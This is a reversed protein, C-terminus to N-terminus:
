FDKFIAVLTDLRGIQTFIKKEKDRIENLRELRAPSLVESEQGVVDIRKAQSLIDREEYKEAKLVQLFRSITKYIHELAIMKVRDPDFYWLFITRGAARTSDKPVEQIDVIGSMQMELLKTRVDKLKLLGFKQIQKEELKGKQRLMRAIRCGHEGFTEFIFNDLETEQMYNVLEDFDVTWEGLGRSGCKRVFHPSYDALLLLHNKIDKMKNMGAERSAPMPLKDDFTVKTKRGLPRVAPARTLTDAFFEEGDSDTEVVVEPINGFENVDNLLEEDDEDEDSSADGEVTAESDDIGRKRKRQPKELTATKIFHSEVKGIGLSPNISKDLARALEMTSVTPGEDIDNLDDISPDLQCRPVRGELLKLLVHYVQSTTEGLDGRVLAVLQQNRLVVKCKEYNIRV